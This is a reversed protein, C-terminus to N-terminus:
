HRQMNLCSLQATGTGPTHVRMWYLQDINIVILSECPLSPPIIASPRLFLIFAADLLRGELRPQQGSINILKRYGRLWQLEWWEHFHSQNILQTGSHVSYAPSGVLGVTFWAQECHAAGEDEGRREQESCVATPERRGPVRLAKRLVSPLAPFVRCVVHWASM